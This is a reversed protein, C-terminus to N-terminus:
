VDLLVTSHEVTLYDFSFIICIHGQDVFGTARAYNYCLEYYPYTNTKKTPLNGEKLVDFSLKQNTIHMALKM